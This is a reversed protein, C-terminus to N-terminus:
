NLGDTWRVRPRAQKRQGEPQWCLSWYAWTDRSNTHLEKYWRLKASHHAEIWDPLNLQKMYDEAQHTVRRIWEVWPELTDEMDGKITKRGSRMMMRLMKRQTRRIKSELDKTLVWCASGYLMTATVTADFLKMRKNLSYQKGTLEEHLTMFRRWACAIRHDVEATHCTDFTIKRGLYKVSSSYPLIEINMGSVQVHSARSRGSRRTLNSINKTEDPHLELGRSKAAISIDSLMQQLRPLTQSVLLVDDAFRLNTLHTIDTHGLQLGMRKQVWTHKVERMIDELLANFLISSLPDGQKTGRMIDYPKSVRDTRVHGTQGKYLNSLLQIYCDPVGQRELANWLCEHEVCDFAKKFDFVAVMVPRQWEHAKEQILAFTSMHHLTSFHPRFGAQDMSQERDLIPHLRAYLLKAYLKYLLPIITIPRYNEPKNQEGSKYLVSVTSCKWTEPPMTNVSIVQNYLGLLVNSLMTGGNKIMEAFVGAGDRARGNKLGKIAAELESNTFKPVEAAQDSRRMGQQVNRTAYLKGYFEAFIDAIDQRETHDCGADDTMYTILAKRKCTKTGAIQKLGKLNTLIANIKAESELRQIMKIEKQIDKSLSKRGHAQTSDL